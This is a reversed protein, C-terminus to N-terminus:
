APRTRRRSWPSCWSPIPRSSSQARVATATAAGAALGALLTRRDIM